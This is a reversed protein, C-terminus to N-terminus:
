TAKNKACTVGFGVLLENGGVGVLPYWRNIVVSESKEFPRSKQSRTALM